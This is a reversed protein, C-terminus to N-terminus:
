TARRLMPLLNRLEAGAGWREAKRRRRDQVRIREALGPLDVAYAPPESLQRHVAYYHGAPVAVYRVQRGAAGTHHVSWGPFAVELADRAEVDSSVAGV